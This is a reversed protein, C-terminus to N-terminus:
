GENEQNALADSTGELKVREYIEALPIRVGISELELVTELDILDRLVWLGREDKHFHEVQVRRQEILVYDCLSPISRYHVFKDGRDYRETTPSLVEFVVSPNALTESPDATLEVPGCVVSIDPYAYTGSATRVRMDSDYTVCDTGRLRSGLAVTTNVKIQSHRASGGALAIIQGDRYEYRQDSAIEHEFYEAVTRFRELAPQTM